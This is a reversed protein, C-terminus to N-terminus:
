YRPLYYTRAQLLFYRSRTKDHVDVRIWTSGVLSCWVLCCNLINCVSLEFMFCFLVCILKLRGQTNASSKRYFLLCTIRFEVKVIVQRTRSQFISGIIFYKTNCFFYRVQYIDKPSKNENLCNVSSFLCRVFHRETEM